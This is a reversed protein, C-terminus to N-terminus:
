GPPRGRDALARELAKFPLLVCDHRSPVARVPTFIDLGALGDAPGGDRLFREVVARLGLLEDATRGGAHRALLAAAAQTLLCGRTQHAARAIRDGALELELTTRDGCLPNDVRARLDAGELPGQCGADRAAAMIADNYISQSM